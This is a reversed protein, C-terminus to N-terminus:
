TTINEPTQEEQSVNESDIIDGEMCLLLADIFFIDTQVKSWVIFTVACLLLSTLFFNNYKRNLSLHNYVFYLSYIVLGIIGCYFVFNCYGIDSNIKFVGIIGAGIWWTRIDGREPWIWMEELINTSTTSWVGTEAWNFFGEFAFRLNSHFVESSNYLLVSIFITIGILIFLIAFLSIQRTSVFGGREIMSNTVLIYGLGLATGVITTRSVMSGIVVIVVFAFFLWSASGANGNRSQQTIQHAILVLVASMRVGAPDLAFGIGYLRHDREYFDYGQNVIAKVISEVAPINDILLSLICQSVCVLALYRTILPLDAKDHCIRILFYVGYAGAMWTIFSVIYNDYEHQHSGNVTVSFFCWVSFVLAILGSILVTRSIKVAHQQTSDWAFAALGIVALMIKTNLGIPLFMFSFPFIYCSVVITLFAGILFKKM